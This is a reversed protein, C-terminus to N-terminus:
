SSSGRVFAELEEFGDRVHQQWGKFSPDERREVFWLTLQLTRLANFTKLYREHEAPLSRVARYGHLLAARLSDYEGRDRIESLAVSLDHLHHGWGCDDFDIACVQGGAFLYNEQHLDAHILGYVDPGTGLNRRAEKVRRVVERVIAVAHPGGHERVQGDVFACVDESLDGIRWREFGEPPIFRSAQDHLEAMFRGVRELHVPGLGADLFRGPQWRFLVSLRPEPLDDDYALTVMSGDNAPVSEPVSLGTDRRIAALWLMESTVEALSRPPHLPSGSVRHIRLVFREGNRAEVRFTTNEAHALPVLEAQGVAYADLVRTALRRLRTLPTRVNLSDFPEM